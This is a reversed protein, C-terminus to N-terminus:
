LWRELGLFVGFVGLPQRDHIEGVVLLDGAALNQSELAVSGNSRNAVQISIPRAKGDVLQWVIPQGTNAADTAAPDNSRYSLAESPVRLYPDAVRTVIDIFATMGPFLRQDANEVDIVVTYMVVNQVLEAAKRVQSVVGTFADDPFADVRFMVEQGGQVRGIDAEDVKAHVELKSLDDTLTFLTPAELSSNVTQGENVARNIVVGDRPARITTKSLEDRAVDVSARQKAVGARARMVAARRQEALARLSGVRLDHEALNAEAEMHRAIAMEHDARAHTRDAESVTGRAALAEIRSLTAAHLTMEAQALVLRASLSDRRASMAALDRKAKSLEFRAIDVEAEAMGLGASAEALRARARSQDLVALRQGREVTDNFDVFVSKVQGSLHSSVDVITVAQVGGMASVIEIDQEAAIPQTLFRVDADTRSSAIGIASLPLSLALIGVGALLRM